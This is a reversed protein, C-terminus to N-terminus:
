YKVSFTASSFLLGGVRVFSLFLFFDCVGSFDYCKKLLSASFRSYKEVLSLRVKACACM